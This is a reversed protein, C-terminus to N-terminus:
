EKLWFPLPKTENEDVPVTAREEGPRRRSRQGQRKNKGQGRSRKEQCSLPPSELLLLLPATALPLSFARPLSAASPWLFLFRRHVFCFCLRQWKPELLATAPRRKAGKCNGGALFIGWFFIKGGRFFRADTPPSFKRGSVTNTRSRSDFM